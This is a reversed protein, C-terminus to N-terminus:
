SGAEKVQLEAQFEQRGAETQTVEGLLRASTVEDINSISELLGLTDEISGKLVIKKNQYTFREIIVDKSLNNALKNMIRAVLQQRERAQNYEKLLKQQELAKARHTQLQTTDRALQSVRQDAQNLQYNILAGDASLYAALLVCFMVITKWYRWPNDIDFQNGCKGQALVAARPTQNFPVLPKNKIVVCSDPDANSFVREDQAALQTEIRRYHLPSSLPYLQELCQPSQWVVGWSVQDSKGTNDIAREQYILTGRDASTCALYYALAPVIHTVSDTFTISDADWFWVSVLWQEDRKTTWFHLAVQKWDVLQEIENKVCDKLENHAVLDCQYYFTKFLCLQQPVLGIVKDFRGAKKLSPNDERYCAPWVLWQKQLQKIM